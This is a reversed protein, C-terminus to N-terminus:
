ATKKNGFVKHMFLRIRMGLPIHKGRTWKAFREQKWRPYSEYKKKSWEYIQAATMHVTQEYTLPRYGFFLAQNYALQIVQTKSANVNDHKM